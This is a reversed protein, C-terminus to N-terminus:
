LVHGLAVGVTMLVGFMMHLQATMVDAMALEAPESARFVLKLNRAAIPVTLLAALALPSVV